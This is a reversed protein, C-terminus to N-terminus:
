GAGESTIPTTKDTLSDIQDQLRRAILRDREVTAQQYHLAMTPTAHGLRAQMEKVTAGSQAGLTAATRRLDHWHMTPKGIAERAAYFGYASKAYRRGGRVEVRSSRGYLATPALLDGDQGPFVLADRGRVNHEELHSRLMEVLLPPLAVTRQSEKTKPDGASKKGDARTYTRVVTVAGGELDIDRRRLAVAEGFRLGALGCLMTLARHRRPMHEALDLLESLTLVEPERRVRARRGAKVRCPSRPIVEDGEAEAMISSLVQYAHARATPTRDGYSAYWHRVMEATIGDMPVQGFAPILHREIATRYSSRTSPRLHHRSDLWSVAYSSFVNEQRRRTEERAKDARAVPSSWAGSAVVRREDVLWAEADEATEFTVPAYHLQTDPGTYFAQWRRSPLRRLQGFGRRRRRAM